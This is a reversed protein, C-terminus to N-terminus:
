TRCGLRQWLEAFAGRPYWRENLVIRRGDRVWLHREGALRQWRGRRSSRERDIDTLPVKVRARFGIDPADLVGDALYLRARQWGALGPIATGILGGAATGVVIIWADLGFFPMVLLSGFTMAGWLPLLTARYYRWATSELLLPPM